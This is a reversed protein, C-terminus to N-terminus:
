KAAALRIVTLLHVVLASQHDHRHEVQPESTVSKCSRTTEAPSANAQGGIATHVDNSGGHTHDRNPLRIKSMFTM